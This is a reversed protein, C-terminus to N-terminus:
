QTKFLYYTLGISIVLVIVATIWYFMIITLVLEIVLLGIIDWWGAVDRRYERWNAEGMFTFFYFLNMLPIGIGLDLYLEIQGPFIIIRLIFASILCIIGIALESIISVTLSDGAYKHKM